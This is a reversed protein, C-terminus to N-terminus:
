ARKTARIGLPLSFVILITPRAAQAATVALADVLPAILILQFICIDIKMKVFRFPVIRPSMVQAVALISYDSCSSHSFLETTTVPDNDARSGCDNFTEIRLLTDLMIHRVENCDADVKHSLISKDDKGIAVKSRLNMIIESAEQSINKREAIIDFEIGRCKKTKSFDISRKKRGTPAQVIVRPEPSVPPAATAPPAVVAPATPDAQVVAVAPILPVAPVVQAPPVAPAAPGPQPGCGMDMRVLIDLMIHRVANCEANVKYSMQLKNGGTSESKMSNMTMDFKQMSKIKSRLNEIIEQEERSSNKNEIIIDFEIGQCKKMKSMDASRKKRRAGPVVPVAQVVPIAHVIQPASAAPATSVSSSPQPGCAMYPSSLIAITTIIYADGNCILLKPSSAVCLMVLISLSAAFSISCQTFIMATPQLTSQHPCNSRIMRVPGLLTSTLSSLAITFPIIYLGILIITNLKRISRFYYIPFSVVLLRDISNALLGFANLLKM